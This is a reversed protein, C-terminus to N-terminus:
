EPTDRPDISIVAVDFQEGVTWPVDRLTKTVGDLVLSCLMPCTHYAFVLMTPRKGDFLEGVRVTRGDADLFIEDPPLPTGLHEVVDVGVLEAPTVNVIGQEDKAFLAPARAAQRAFAGGVAWAGVGVLLVAGWLAAIVRPLKTRSHAM